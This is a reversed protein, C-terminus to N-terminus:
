VFQTLNIKAELGIMRLEPAFRMLHIEPGGIAKATKLFADLQNYRKAKSPNLFRDFSKIHLNSVIGDVNIVPAHLRLKLALEKYQEQLVEIKTLSESSNNEFVFEKNAHPPSFQSWKDWYSQVFYDSTNEILKQYNDPKGGISSEFTNELKDVIVFIEEELKKFTNYQNTDNYLLTKNKPM